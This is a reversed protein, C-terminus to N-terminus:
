RKEMANSTSCATPSAGRCLYLGPDEGVIGTERPLVRPGGGDLAITRLLEFLGPAEARGRRSSAM